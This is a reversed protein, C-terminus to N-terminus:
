IKIGNSDECRKLAEQWTIEKIEGNEKIVLPTNYRKAKEIAILFSGRLDDPKGLCNELPKSVMKTDDRLQDSREMKRSEKREKRHTMNKWFKGWGGAHKFRRSWYERSHTM